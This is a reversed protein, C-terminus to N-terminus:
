LPVSVQLAKETPKPSGGEPEITVAVADAAQVGSGFWAKRTSGGDFTNNPVAVTGRDKLTWLQYAKGPGPDPLNKGILLAQDSTKSVVFTVPVGNKMTQTYVKADPAALLQTERNSEAVQADRQRDLSVVWGGLGLAVVLAAALAFSLLRAARRQRRLALEDPVPEAATQGATHVVPVNPEHDERQAPLEPPLPRVNKIASMVSDRLAPPPAAEVLQGLHAATESFEVVERQCTECVALHAEFENLEDDDLANVVYSGVAGHIESM